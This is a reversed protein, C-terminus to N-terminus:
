AFRCLFFSFVLWLSKVNSVGIQRKRLSPAALMATFPNIVKELTWGGTTDGIRRETLVGDEKNDGSGDTM